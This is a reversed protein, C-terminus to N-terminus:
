CDWLHLISWKNFKMEFIAVAGLFLNLAGSNIHLSRVNTRNGGRVCRPPFAVFIDMNPFPYNDKLCAINLNRFDIYIRISGNKKRVVVLNSCWSYHRTPAIIGVVLM